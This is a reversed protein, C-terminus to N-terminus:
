LRIDVGRDPAIKLDILTPPTLESEDANLQQNTNADNSNDTNNKGAQDGTNAGQGFAFNIQDYGMERFTQGLQDIHRRMLDLTDTREAIINVTIIGDDAVISMRVRGLEEPSLAIEVPRNTAQTMAEGLQRAVHPALDARLPATSATAASKTSEWSTMELAEISTLFSLVNDASKTNQSDSLNPTATSGTATTTISTSLRPPSPVEATRISLVDSRKREYLTRSTDLSSTPNQMPEIASDGTRVQAFSSASQDQTVVHNPRSSRTQISDSQKPAVTNKQGVSVSASVTKILASSQTEARNIANNNGEKTRGSTAPLTSLDISTDSQMGPSSGSIQSVGSNKVGTKTQTLIKTGSGTAIPAETRQDPLNDPQPSPRHMTTRADRMQVATMRESTDVSPNHTPQDKASGILDVKDGRKVTADESSLEAEGLAIDVEHDQSSSSMDSQELSTLLEAFDSSDSNDSANNKTVAQASETTKRTPATTVTQGSPGVPINM